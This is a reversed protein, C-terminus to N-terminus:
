KTFQRSFNVNGSQYVFYFQPLFRVQDDTIQMYLIIYYLLDGIAKKIAPRFRRSEIMAHIFEFVSYVFNEFGLVEGSICVCVHNWWM